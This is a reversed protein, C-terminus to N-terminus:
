VVADALTLEADQALTVRGGDQHEAFLRELTALVEGRLPEETPFYSASTARGILGDRDVVHPNDFRLVRVNEFVGTGDPRASRIHHVVLGRAAADAQARRV